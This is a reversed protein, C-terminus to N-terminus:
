SIKDAHRVTPFSLKQSMCCPVFPQLTKAFKRACICKIRGSPKKPPITGFSQGPLYKHRRGTSVTKQKNPLLFSKGPPLSLGDACLLDGSTLPWGQTGKWDFRELTNGKANINQHFQQKRATDVFSNAESPARKLQYKCPV